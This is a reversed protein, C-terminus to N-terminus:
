RCSRPLPPLEGQSAYERSGTSQPAHVSAERSSAPRYLSRRREERCRRAAAEIRSTTFLLPPATFPARRTATYGPRASPAGGAAAAALPPELRGRLRARQGTSRLAARASSSTTRVSSRQGVGGRRDYPLTHERVKEQPWEMARNSGGRGVGRRLGQRGAEQAAARRTERGATHSSHCQRQAVHCRSCARRRQESGEEGGEQM